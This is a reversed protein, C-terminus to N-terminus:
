EIEDRAATRIEAEIRDALDQRVRPEFEHPWKRRWHLLVCSIDGTQNRSALLLISDFSQECKKSRRRCHRDHLCFAEFRKLWTISLHEYVARAFCPEISM